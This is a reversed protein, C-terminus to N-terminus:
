GRRKEEISNFLRGGNFAFMGNSKVFDILGVDKLMINAYSKDRMRVAAAFLWGWTLDCGSGIKGALPKRCTHDLHCVLTKHAVDALESDADVDDGPIVCALYGPHCLDTRGSESESDLFEGDKQPYEPFESLAEAAKKAIESNLKYIRDYKVVSEWLPKILGLDNSVNWAPITGQEPAWSPGIHLKGDEGRETLHLYYEAASELVPFIENVIFDRDPNWEAAKRYMDAYFGTSCQMLRYYSPTM